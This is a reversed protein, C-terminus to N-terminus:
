ALLPLQASKVRIKRLAKEKAQRVAERSTGRTKGVKELTIPEGTTLGYMQDIVDRETETLATTLILQLRDLEMSNWAEEVTNTSDSAILDVIACGDDDSNKAHADLSGHGAAHSLYIELTAVPINAFAACQEMTPTKGTLNVADAVFRRIKSLVDGAAGPLRIMRDSQAIARAIGQRIWWYGYTSFCYGREPDFKEVGRILGLTGEQVLDSLELCHTRYMFRKAVAVVLRMNANVMRERARRGTRIVRNEETTYPGSPNAGLLGHMAQIARGLIIEEEKTLLPIKGAADLYYGIGEMSGKM